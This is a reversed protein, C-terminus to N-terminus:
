IYRKIKAKKKIDEIWKTYVEQQKKQLLQNKVDTKAEEFSRQHAPKIKILKIVHYGSSTPLPKSYVEGEKMSFIVKVFDPGFMQEIVDKTLAGFTGKNNKTMQDVSYKTVAEEFKLGKKIEEIVKEATKEDRVMVHAFEATESTFFNAKNKDYFEKMEKEDAKIDKFLKQIMKEALIQKKIKGPLESETIGAQSLASKFDAESQFQKKIEDIRKNVEDDTVKIGEKESQQVILEFEILQELVQKRFQALMKQGEEGQFQSAHSGLVSNLQAELESNYIKANNVEAVVKDQLKQAEPKKSCGTFILLLALLAAGFTLIRKAKM